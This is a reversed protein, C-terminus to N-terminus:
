QGENEKIVRVVEVIFFESLREIEVGDGRYVTLTKSAELYKECFVKWLQEEINPRTYYPDNGLFAPVLKMTVDEKTNTFTSSKDFDLMWLQTAFFFETPAIVERPPKEMRNDDEEEEFSETHFEQPSSGLVFEVDMADLRCKWHLIALGIAMSTALDTADLGIDEIMNLRLPFNRLSDYVGALQGNSEREGLYVRVLCDDNDPNRKVSEQVADDKDFYLEILADRAEKPVPLIRDM